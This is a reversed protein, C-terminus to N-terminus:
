YYARSSVRIMSPNIGMDVLRNKANDSHCIYFVITDVEIDGKVFFEAQKKNKMEGTTTLYHLTREIEKCLFSM